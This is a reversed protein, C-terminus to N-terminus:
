SVDNKYAIDEVSTHEKIWYILYIIMQDMVTKDGENLKDKFYKVKSRFRDHLVIHEDLKPYERSKLIGEEYDFHFTCYNVLSNLAALVVSSDEKDEYCLLLDNTFEILRIHQEDLENDDVSISKDWKLKNTSITM